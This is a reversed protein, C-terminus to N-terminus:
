LINWAFHMQYYYFLLYAITTVVYWITKNKFLHNIEWPLLIFSYLITYGPLRGIQVGSTFMSVIYIGTSVISMNVCINVVKNQKENIQKRFVFSIITPFSCVLVRLPNTGTEGNIQETNAAYQTDKAAEGLLDTFQDIFVVSVIVLIIFAVTKKNWAEGQVIFITPIMILATQHITSMILIVIIATIYKKRIILTFTLLVVTIALFQRIGNYMWGVYNVSVVFLFVSFIYNESYKRFVTFVCVGQIFALLVLFATVNNHFILKCIYVFIEFGQDKEVSLFHERFLSFDTSMDNYRAVYGWTDGINYNRFGAMLILPVFVVFAFLWLYRQEEIGDVLVARKFQAKSAIFACLGLWLLILIHEM